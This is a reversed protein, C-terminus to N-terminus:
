RNSRKSYNGYCTNEIVIKLFNQVIVLICYKKIVKM